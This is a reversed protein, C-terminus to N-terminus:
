GPRRALRWAVFAAGALSVGSAIAGGVLVPFPLREVTRGLEALDVVPPIWAAVLGHVTAAPAPITRHGADGLHAADGLRAIERLRAAVRDEFRFSPHFRVLGAALVAATSEAEFDHGSPADPAQLPPGDLGALTRDASTLLSEIYADALFALEEEHPIM